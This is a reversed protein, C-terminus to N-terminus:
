SFSNIRTSLVRSSNGIHFILKVNRILLMQIIAQFSTKRKWLFEQFDLGCAWFNNFVIDIFIIFVHFLLISQFFPTSVGVFTKETSLKLFSQLQLAHLAKIFTEFLIRMGWPYNLVVLSMKSFIKMNKVLSAFYFLKKLKFKEWNIKILIRFINYKQSWTFLIQKKYVNFEKYFTFSSPVAARM